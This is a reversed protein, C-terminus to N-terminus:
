EDGHIEKRLKEISVRHRRNREWEAHYKRWCTRCRRKSGQMMDFPHGLKCVFKPRKNINQEHRTAWRCNWPEYNGNNDERDLTKGEPCRGMDALFQLYSTRWFIVVRIGRGGYDKYQPNNPNYCRALMNRWVRYERTTQKGNRTSGEGHVIV